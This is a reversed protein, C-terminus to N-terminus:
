PQLKHPLACASAHAGASPALPVAEAVIRTGHCDCLAHLRALRERRKHQLAPPRRDDSRARQQSISLSHFIFRDNDSPKHSASTAARLWCYASYRM